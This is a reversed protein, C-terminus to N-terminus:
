CLGKGKKMAYYLAEFSYFDNPTTIKINESGCETTYLTFGRASMLTASDIYSNDGCTIAWKHAEYLDGVRFCQPAKAYRCESRDITERLKGDREIRIITEIAKSVAISNGYRRCTEISKTILEETILPRVGDHVLVIDKDEVYNTCTVLYDLGNYISNQGTKGGPIICRVKNLNFKQKLDKSFNIWDKNVVVVIGDIDPHNEFKEITHVLIPKDDVNLFQKPMESKMRTGVGGAFIIVYNM